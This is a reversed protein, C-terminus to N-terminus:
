IIVCSKKSKKGENAKPTAPNEPLSSRERVEPVKLTPRKAEENRPINKEPSKSNRTKRQVIWDYLYDYEFGLRVYLDKLLKRLYVYDPQEEFGLAKTYNLYTALEEPYGECLESVQTNMKIEYIRRYKEERSKIDVGQWPLSGKLFYMIVYGISELDDRRSQEIGAHTNISAYRATGTLSKGERYAIHKGSRPDRYKKALGFDIAYVMSSRKGTGMLFNDPKIDRHIFSKCHIYEIRSIMQDALMLASKISLKRKCMNFVDELSPGLLDLVMINYNGETGSWHVAPIGPGGQLLKILKSEYILQPHRSTTNELKIAVEENSVLNIGRYIEGFSGSGIKKTLKFKGGVQLDQM